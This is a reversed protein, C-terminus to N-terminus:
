PCPTTGKCFGIWPHGVSRKPKFDGFHKGCGEQYLSRLHNQWGPKRFLQLWLLWSTPLEKEDNQGKETKLLKLPV